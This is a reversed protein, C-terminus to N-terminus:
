VRIHQQHALHSNELSHFVLLLESEEARPNCWGHPYQADFLISDGACLNFSQTSIFYNVEGSICYVFEQGPHSIVKSSTDVGPAITIRYPEIRQNPLGYGLSESTFNSKKIKMGQAYKLHVISQEPDNEFLDSISIGLAESIRKLSSITPSNEGREILSIANASLGCKQALDRMSLEHSKRLNKIIKGIGLELSDDM